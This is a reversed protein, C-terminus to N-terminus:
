RPFVIARCKVRIDSGGSTARLEWNGSGDARLQAQEAMGNFAGAVETLFMAGDKLNFPNPGLFFKVINDEGPSTAAQIIERSVRLANANASPSDFALTVNTTPM